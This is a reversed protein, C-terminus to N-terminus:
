QICFKKENREFVREFLESRDIGMIHEIDKEFWEFLLKLPPLLRHEINRVFLKWIGGLFRQVPRDTWARYKRIKKRVFSHFYVEPVPVCIRDTWARPRCVYSKMEKPFVKFSSISRNGLHAWIIKCIGRIFTKVAPATEGRYKMCSPRCFRRSLTPRTSRNVSLIKLNKKKWSVNDIVVHVPVRLRDTWARSQM